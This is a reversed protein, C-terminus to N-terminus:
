IARLHEVAFFWWLFQRFNFWHREKLSQEVDFRECWGCFHYSVSICISFMCFWTACIGCSWRFGSWGIAVINWVCCSLFYTVHNVLSICNGSLFRWARCTMDNESPSIFSCCLLVAVRMEALKIKIVLVAFFAGSFVYLLLMYVIFVQSWVALMTSLLYGHEFHM